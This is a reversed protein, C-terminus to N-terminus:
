LVSSNVEGIYLSKFFLFCEQYTAQNEHRLRVLGPIIPMFREDLRGRDGQREGCGSEWQGSIGSEGEM